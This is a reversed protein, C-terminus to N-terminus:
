REESIYISSYDVGEEERKAVDPGEEDKVKTVRAARVAVVHM